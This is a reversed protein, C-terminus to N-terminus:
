TIPVGPDQPEFVDESGTSINEFECSSVMAPGLVFMLPIIYTRLKRIISSKSKFM